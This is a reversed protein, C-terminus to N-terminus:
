LVIQLCFMPTPWPKDMDADKCVRRIRRVGLKLVCPSPQSPRLLQSRHESTFCVSVVRGLWVRILNQLRFFVVFFLSWRVLFMDSVIGFIMFQKLHSHMEESNRPFVWATMLWATCSTPFRLWACGVLHSTPLTPLQSPDDTCPVAHPFQLSVKLVFFPSIHRLEITCATCDQQFQNLHLSQALSVACSTRESAIYLTNMSTWAHM